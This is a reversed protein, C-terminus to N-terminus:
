LAIVSKEREGMGYPLYKEVFDSAILAGLMKSLSGSSAFHLEKLINQRTFGSRQKGLGMCVAM